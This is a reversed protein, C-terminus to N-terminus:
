GSWLIQGFAEAAAQHFAHLDSVLEQSSTTDLADLTELTELSFARLCRVSCFSRHAFLGAVPEPLREVRIVTGGPPIRSGCRCVAGDPSTTEYVRIGNLRQPRHQLYGFVVDV